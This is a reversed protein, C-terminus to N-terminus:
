GAVGRSLFRPCFVMCQTHVMNSAILIQNIMKTDQGAGAPGLHTITKGLKAFLPQLAQVSEASGGVMISLTANKAGM